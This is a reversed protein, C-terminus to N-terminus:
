SYVLSNAIILGGACLLIALIAPWKSARGRRGVVLYFFLCLGFAALGYGGIMRLSNVHDLAQIAEAEAEPTV